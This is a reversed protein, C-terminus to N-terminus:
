KSTRIRLVEGVGVLTGKNSVYFSGDAGVAVSTPTVLGASALETHTGNREVRTLAGAPSGSLLGNKTIELVILRGRRDFAIDIINTFGSAYVTPAAGPVVRWVKAGGVPFPFGTLQGVYYAGDPGRVVTTPVFHMPIEAGGPGPTPRVPFVALTSIRGKRDIRLLDNGGADTAVVGGPAPALGYPNSDPGTGPQGQDPNNVREFAALDAFRRPGYKTLRVIQGTLAGARGLSARRAPDTGLGLTVLLGASTYAIDHPGLVESADRTGLSPLGTVIRSQRGHQIATVAGTASLCFEAGAGGIVCPGVGARGAETVLILGGPGLALGRPNDLGTALVDIRIAPAGSARPSAPAPSAIVAVTAAAMLVTLWRRPHNVM